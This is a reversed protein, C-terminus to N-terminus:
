AVIQGERSGPDLDAGLFRRGLQLAARGFSGSGAFPDVVFGGPETLQDIIYFVEDIGQAWEHADKDPRTGKVKDALYHKGTRHDRVFWVLPKWECMVWKGPLQQGGHRHDLSLTWWYRLHQSMVALVEPLAAQGSYAVVSGGPKLKAAAFEALASFSAVAEDGYPPDTLVLDISGNPIDALVDRFDGPRIDPADDSRLSEAHESRQQRKESRVMARADRVDVAGEPADQIDVLAQQAREADRATTTPVLTPRRAPYTRGNKTRITEPEDLQTTGSLEKLDDRVTSQGVGLARAIARQSHGQARLDAVLQQRQKPELHRRDTNLTAAISRADDESEIRIVDVRYDVGLEDAIRARHHGDITNGHQDKAVPVLVGWREISARLAAETASDLAPFLQYSM